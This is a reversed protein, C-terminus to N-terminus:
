KVVHGGSPAPVFVRPTALLVPAAGSSWFMTYTGPMTPHSGLFNVGGGGANLGQVAYHACNNTFFNYDWSGGQRSQFWATAAAPDSVTVPMLLFNSGKEREWFAAASKPDTMKWQYSVSKTEDFRIGNTPVSNLLLGELWHLLGHARAPHNVEYITGSVPDYALGHPSGNERTMYYWTQPDGQQASVGAEAETKDDGGSSYSNNNTTTSSNKIFRLLADRIGRITNVKQQADASLQWLEISGTTTKTSQTSYGDSYNVGEVESMGDPDIFRMPNDFGYRYPTWGRSQEALPDIVGWRGIEPMYMRAGFDYWNLALEDQLEKGSYLYKQEWSNSRQMDNYTLGFPFYDSTAVIPSLTHTVSLDDFYADVFTPNENSIFIYAYGAENANVTVSLLDHPPQKVSGSTQAGASGVQDWAADLFTYNKDFLLVTVFIKPLADDGQYHDGGAIFGAYSNLAAYIKQDAGVSASTVGFASSLALAFSNNNATNSVNMYKAYVSATIQDGPM